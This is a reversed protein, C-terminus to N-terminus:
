PVLRIIISGADCRASFEKASLLFSIRHVEEWFMVGDVYFLVRAGRPGDLNSKRLAALTNAFEAVFRDCVEQNNTEIPWTWGRPNLLWLWSDGGIYEPKGTLYPGIVCRSLILAARDKSSIAESYDEPRCQPVPRKVDSDRVIQKGAVLAEFVQAVFAKANKELQLERSEYAKAPAIVPTLSAAFILQLAVLRSLLTERSSRKMQKQHCSM